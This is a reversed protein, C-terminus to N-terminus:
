FNRSTLFSYMSSPISHTGLRGGMGLGWSYLNGDDLVDSDFVSLLIIFLLLLFWVM